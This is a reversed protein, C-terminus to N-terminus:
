HDIHVTIKVKVSQTDGFILQTPDSFPARAILILTDSAPDACGDGTPCTATYTLGSVGADAALEDMLGEAQALRADSWPGASLYRAGSGAAGAIVNYQWMLRGLVFACLLMVCLLSTVFLVEVVVLGRQRRSRLPNLRPKM